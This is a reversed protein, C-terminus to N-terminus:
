FTLGARVLEGGAIRKNIAVADAAVSEVDLLRGPCQKDKDEMGGKLTDHGVLKLNPWFRLLAACLEVLSWLQEQTPPLFRFDGLCAIGIGTTNFRKAHPSGSGFEIAQWVTGGIGNVFTYPMRGGTAARADPETEYYKAAGVADPTIGHREYEILDHWGFRHVVGYEIDDVDRNQSHRGGCQEIRNLIRLGTM